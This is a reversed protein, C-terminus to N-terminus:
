ESRFMWSAMRVQRAWQALHGAKGGVLANQHWASSCRWNFVVQYGEIEAERNAKSRKGGTDACNMLQFEIKQSTRTVKM